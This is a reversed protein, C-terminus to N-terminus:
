FLAALAEVLGALKDPGRALDLQRVPRPIAALQNQARAAGLDNSGRGFHRGGFQVGGLRAMLTRGPRGAPARGRRPRGAYRM